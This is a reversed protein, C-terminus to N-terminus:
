SGCKEELQRLFNQGEIAFSPDLATANIVAARAGELACLEGYSAALKAFLDPNKPQLALAALYSDITRQFDKNRSYARAFASYEEVTIEYGLDATLVRIEEGVLDERKAFISALVFNIHSERPEPNLDIASRFHQLGLDQDGSSFAAQGLEYYIQPRTPSLELAREGLEFIRDLRDSGLSASRNLTTMLFLYSRVDRPSESISKELESIVYLYLDAQEEQSLQGSAVAENAYDVLRQRIEEDKYTGLSLSSAFAPQVQRYQNTKAAIIGDVSRTNALWPEVNVFYSTVLMLVAVITVPVFGARVTRAAPQEEGERLSLNKLSAAYALIIFFLLYTAQTDFVFFNQIFYALLAGILLFNRRRLLYLAAIVLISLYAILGVVGSTVGVDFIINHARDFWIQSGQDKFIRAPFHQNFAINYNEYGYGLVFRDKWGEWSAGWTDFRSQTTIDTPSITALRRLTIQNQIISSDRGFYIGATASVVLVIGILATLRAKKSSGKILNLLSYVMIAVGAAVIAGRTQSHYISFVEVAFVIWLFIKINRAKAGSFYSSTQRILYLSLFVGFLMFAAFFAANGITSSVRLGQSQVIPQSTLQSLGILAVVFTMSVTGMLYKYWDRMSRFVAVLMTFYAAFHIMTIVGEGREVTGMFSKSFNVGFISAIVIIAIYIWVSRTLWNWKPRLEPYRLALFVYIVVALEILFRLYFVKTTIFPFFFISWVLLPTLLLAYLIFKLFKYWINTELASDM